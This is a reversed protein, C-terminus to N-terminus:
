YWEDWNALVLQLLQLLQEWENNRLRNNLENIINLLDDFSILCYSDEELILHDYITRYASNNINNNSIKYQKDVKTCVYLLFPLICIVQINVDFEDELIFYRKKNILTQIKYIYIPKIMLVM